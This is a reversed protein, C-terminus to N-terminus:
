PGVWARVEAFSGKSRPEVFLPKLAEVKKALDRAQSLFLVPYSTFPCGKWGDFPCTPAAAIGQSQGGVKGLNKAM